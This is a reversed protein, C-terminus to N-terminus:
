SGEAVGEGQSFRGRRGGATPYRWLNRCSGTALAVLINRPDDFFASTQRRIDSTQHRVDSTQYCYNQLMRVTAPPGRTCSHCTQSTAASSRKTASIAAGPNQSSETATTQRAAPSSEIPTGPTSAGP